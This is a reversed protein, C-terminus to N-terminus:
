LLEGDVEFVRLWVFVQLSDAEPVGDSLLDSVGLGVPVGDCLWVVVGLTM